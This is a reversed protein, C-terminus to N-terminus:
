RRRRLLFATAACAALGLTGPEPALVASAYSDALTVNDILYQDAADGRFYRFILNNLNAAVTAGAAATLGMTSTAPETADTPDLYLDVRNSNTAGGTRSVKAVLLHTVDGTVPINGGFTNNATGNPDRAFWQIPLAGASTGGSGVSVKPEGASVDSLGIQLFDENTLTAASARYLFSYYVTNGTQAPIARALQTDANNTGSIQLARSGGSLNLSGNTYSLAATVITAQSKFNDDSGWAGTFGTGGNLGTGPSGNPGSELQSGPTYSEFDDRALVDARATTTAAVPALSIAAGANVFLCLKM